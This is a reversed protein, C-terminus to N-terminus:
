KTPNNSKEKPKPNYLIIIQILIALGILFYIELQTFLEVTQIAQKSIDMQRSGEDLQIKSLDDLNDNIENLLKLLKQDETFNQLVYKEELIKLKKLNNKLEDFIEAEKITLKTQEFSEIDKQIKENNAKLNKLYFVTDNDLLSVKKDYISESINYILHNAVLRDEYINVVSEKVRIFNNRDILNTTIVLVFIMTIGLIWKIKNYFKM